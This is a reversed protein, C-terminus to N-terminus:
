TKREDHFAMFLLGFAGFGAITGMLFARAANATTIEHIGIAISAMTTLAVLCIAGIQLMRRPTM